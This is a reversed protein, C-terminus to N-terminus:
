AGAQNIREELRVRLDSLRQDAVEQTIRGNAVAQDLREDARLLVSETFAAVDVGNAALVDALSSGNRLQEAIERADLGTEQAALRLVGLGLMNGPGPRGLEGNFADAYLEPLSAILEDAQEQTLNGNAVAQNIRETAETVAAAAAEEVSGGSATILDALTSGSRLERLIEFRGMGTEEVTVQVLIRESANRLARRGQRQERLEGNLVRTVNEDLNALMQDAREQTITGNALAQNIHEVAAAVIEAKVADPSGGSAAIVDALTMGEQLQALIAAPQLGTEDAVIAVADRLFGAGRRGQGDGPAGDQASAAGVSVVGVLVAAGIIKRINM